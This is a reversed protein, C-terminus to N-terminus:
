STLVANFSICDLATRSTYHRSLSALLFMVELSAFLDALLLTWRLDMTSTRHEGAPAFIDENLYSVLPFM